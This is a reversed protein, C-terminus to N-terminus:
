PGPWNRSALSSFFELVGLLEVAQELDSMTVRLIARLRSSHVDALPRVAAVRQPDRGYVEERARVAKKDRPQPSSFLFVSLVRVGSPWLGDRRHIGRRYSAEETPGSGM